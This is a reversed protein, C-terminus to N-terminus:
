KQVPQLCFDKLDQEDMSNAAKIIPGPNKVGKLVGKGHRKVALAMCMFHKEADNKAPM